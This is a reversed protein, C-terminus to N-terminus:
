RDLVFPVSENSTVCVFKSMVNPQKPAILLETYGKACRGAFGNIPVERRRVQGTAQAAEEKIRIVVSTKTV